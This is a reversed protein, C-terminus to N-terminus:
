RSKNVIIIGATTRIGTQKKVQSRFEGATHALGVIRKGSVRTEYRDPERGTKVKKKRSKRQNAALQTKKWDFSLMRM